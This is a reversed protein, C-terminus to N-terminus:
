ETVEEGFLDSIQTQAETYEEPTVTGSYDREYTGIMIEGFDNIYTKGKIVDSARTSREVLTNGETDVIECNTAIMSYNTNETFSHSTVTNTYNNWVPLRKVSSFKNDSAIAGESEVREMTGTITYTLASADYVIKIDDGYFMYAGLYFRQLVYDKDALEVIRPVTTYVLSSTDRSLSGDDAVVITPLKVVDINEINYLVSDEVATFSGIEYWEQDVYYQVDTNTNDWIFIGYQVIDFTQWIANVIDANSEDYGALWHVAIRAGTNVFWAYDGQIQFRGDTPQTSSAKFVSRTYTIGDESKYTVQLRSMNSSLILSFGTSSITRNGGGGGSGYMARQSVTIDEVIQRPMTITEPFYYKDIKEENAPRVTREIVVAVDGNICDGSTALEQLESFNSVYYVEPAEVDVVVNGLGTYGEDATYTGNETITKDQNNIETGSGTEATGEVGFIANGSVIKDGTVGGISAITAYPITSRLQQESKLIIKKGYGRDVNLAEGTDTITADSGTTIITDLNTTITGSVKEGNVYATYGNEINDATATADSTNIGTEISLIETDFDKAPISDITEKKTRIAEAIDSLFQTLNSTDAM